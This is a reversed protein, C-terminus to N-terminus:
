SAKTVKALQEELTAIRKEHSRLVHFLSSGMVSVWVWVIALTRRSVPGEPHVVMFFVAMLLALIAYLMLYRATFSQRDLPLTKTM